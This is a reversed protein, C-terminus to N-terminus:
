GNEFDPLNGFLRRKQLYVGVNGNSAWQHQKWYYLTYNSTIPLFPLKGSKQGIV